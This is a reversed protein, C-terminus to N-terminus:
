VNETTGWSAVLACLALAQTESLSFGHQIHARGNEVYLPGLIVNNLHPAGTEALSHRSTVACHLVAALKTALEIDAAHQAKREGIRTMAARYAPLYYSLLRSGLEKAVRALPKGSAINIRAGTWTKRQNWPLLDPLYDTSQEGSPLHVNGSWQILNNRGYHDFSGEIHCGQLLPDDGSYRLTGRAYRSGPQRYPSDETEPQWAWPGLAAALGTLSEPTLIEPTAPTAATDTM